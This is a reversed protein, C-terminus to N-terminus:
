SEGNPTGYAWGNWPGNPRYDWHGRFISEERTNMTTKTFYLLSILSSPINEAFAERAAAIQFVDQRLFPCRKPLRTSAAVLPASDVSFGPRIVPAELEFRALESIHPRISVLM